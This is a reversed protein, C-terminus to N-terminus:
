ALSSAQYLQITQAGNTQLSTLAAIAILVRKRESKDTLLHSWSHAKKEEAEVALQASIQVYEKEWFLPDENDDNM